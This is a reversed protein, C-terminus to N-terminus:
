GDVIFFTAGVLTLGKKTAFDTANWKRRQEFENGGLDEEANISFNTGKPECFLLFTYRHSGSSPSLVTLLTCRSFFLSLTSV